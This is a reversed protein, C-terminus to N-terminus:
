GDQAARSDGRSIGYRHRHAWIGGAGLDFSTSELRMGAKEMVRASAINGVRCKAHIQTTGLAGFERALWAKLLETMYGRGWYRRELAFGFNRDDPEGGFAFWGVAPSEDRLAIAYDGSVRPAHAGQGLCELFWQRRNREDFDAFHIHRTVEPDSLFANVAGWDADEYDRLLLRPTALVQM